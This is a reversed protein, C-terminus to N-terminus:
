RGVGRRARDRDQPDVSGRRPAIRLRHPLIPRMTARVRVVSARLRHRRRRDGDRDDASRGDEAGPEELVDSPKGGHGSQRSCRM